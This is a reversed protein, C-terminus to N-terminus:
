FGVLAAQCVIVIPLNGGAPEANSGELKGPDGRHNGVSSVPPDEQEAKKSDGGEACLLYVPTWRELKIPFPFSGTADDPVTASTLFNEAM